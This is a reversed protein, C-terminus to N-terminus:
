MLLDKVKMEIMHKFYFHKIRYRAIPKYIDALIKLSFSFVMNRSGHLFLSVFFINKLINNREISTWPPNSYDTKSWEELTDFQKYGKKIACDFLETGPYPIYTCIPSIVSNDSNNMLWFAIEITKRIDDDSEEPFGAMFNYQCIINHKKFKNSVEKVQEITINKHIIDLVKESGSEIGFHVKRCGALEILSLQEDTLRLATKINIGQSEWIVGWRNWGNEIIGNCIHEVRKIDVFFDDDVIYFSKVQQYEILYKLMELTKEASLSRWKRKNFVPNYCYSCNNPCGRSTQIYLTPIGDFVPMYQHINVLSYPVPPMSNLDTFPRPETKLIQGESKYYIGKVSQIPTRNYLAKVVEHFTLDGEGVVVIDINENQLTQEPILSAHVGGWVVPINSHEKVVKSASLAHGIQIGTMSTIGVCITEPTLNKILTNKWDKDIRQDIIKVEHEIKNKSNHSLSGKCNYIKNYIEEEPVLYRSICLLALPLSPATRVEDWDGVIPQFLIVKKSM